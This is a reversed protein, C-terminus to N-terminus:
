DFDADYSTDKTKPKRVGAYLGAASAVYYSGSDEDKKVRFMRPSDAGNSVVSLMIDGGDSRKKAINIAYNNKDMKYGNEPTAGVAYSRFIHSYEAGKLRENMTAKSPLNQWDKEMHLIYRLMKSGEDRTGEDMYVYVADFLMLMAGEPSTAIKQCNAKFEKYTSPLTSGRLASSIQEAGLVGVFILFLFLLKKM